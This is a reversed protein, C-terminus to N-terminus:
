LTLLFDDNNDESGDPKVIDPRRSPADAPNLKGKRYEITFDFAALKEAWRIQKASLEKTTMFYRLNNHDSIM